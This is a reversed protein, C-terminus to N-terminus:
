LQNTLKSKYDQELKADNAILWNELEEFRKIWENNYEDEFITICIRIAEQHQDGFREDWFIGFETAYKKFDNKIYGACIGDYNPHATECLDTYLLKLGAYKKDSEDILSLVNIAVPGIKNNRTGLLLRLTIEDFDSFSIKNEIVSQMKKNMYILLCISELASRVLIRAGIIMKENDLKFAQSLIDVIRWSLGERLSILRFTLKWKHATKSRSYLGAIELKKCLTTQYGILTNEIDIM